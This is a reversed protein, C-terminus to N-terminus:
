RLLLLKRTEVLTGAQLRCFYVGSAIHSGDFRVEHYGADQEGQVLLSVQQGMTNYVALTVERKQPLSYQITTSPNCPNPYNRLELGGSSTLEVASYADPKCIHNRIAVIGYASVFLGNRLDLTRAFYIDGRPDLCINGGAYQGSPGVLVEDRKKGTLPDVSYMRAGTVAPLSIHFLYLLKGNMSLEMGPVNGESLFDVVFSQDRKGAADWKTV